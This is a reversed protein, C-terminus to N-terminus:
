LDTHQPRYIHVNYGRHNTHNIDYIQINHGTSRYTTAEITQVGTHRPAKLRDDTATTELPSLSYIHVCHDRSDTTQLRKQTTTERTQMCTNQDRDRTSKHDRYLRYVPTVHDKRGRSGHTTTEITQTGGTRHLPRNLKCVQTAIHLRLGTHLLRM